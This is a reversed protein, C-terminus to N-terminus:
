GRRRWLLVSPVAAALAIAVASAVFTVLAAAGIVASPANASMLYLNLMLRSAGPALLLSAVDRDAFILAATLAAAAALSPALLPISFTWARRFSSVPVLRAADDLSQPVRSYAVLFALSSLGIMRSVYAVAPTVHFGGVSHGITIWGIGVVATPVCFLLLGAVALARVSASRRGPYAAAVALGVSVLACLVPEAVSVGVADVSRARWAFPGSMAAWAYGSLSLTMMAPLVFLSAAVVVNAPKRVVGRGGTPAPLIVTFLPEVLLLGLVVVTALLPVIVPVVRGADFTQSFTTVIDTMSTRFGFLFPIESEGLLLVVTLLFGALLPPRLLPFLVFAIRRVPGLSLRAAEYASSPIERAGALVLLFTVSAFALGAVGSGSGAGSLSGFAPTLRTLGIWWFAPPAAVLVASMGIAWRRGRTELTGAVAGLLGGAVASVVGGTLAFLLAPAISMVDIAPATAFRVALFTHPAATAALLMALPLAPPLRSLRLRDIV